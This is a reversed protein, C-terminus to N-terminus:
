RVAASSTLLGVELLGSEEGDAVGGGDDCGGGVALDDDVGARVKGGVGGGHDLGVGVALDPSDDVATKSEAPLASTLGVADETCREFGEGAVLVVVVADDGVEDSTDTRSAVRVSCSMEATEDVTVEEVGSVNDTARLALSRGVTGAEETDSAILEVEAEGAQAVTLAVACSEQTDSAVLKTEAKRALPLALPEQPSNDGSRTLRLHACRHLPTREKKPDKTRYLIEKQPNLAAPYEPIEQYHHM